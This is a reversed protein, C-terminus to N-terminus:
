ASLSLTYLPGTTSVCPGKKKATPYLHKVDSWMKKLKGRLKQLRHQQDLLDLSLEILFNTMLRTHSFMLTLSGTNVIGEGVTIRVVQMKIFSYPDALKIKM